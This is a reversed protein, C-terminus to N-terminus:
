RRRLQHTVQKVIFRRVHPSKLLKIAFRRVRPNLLLKITLNKKNM